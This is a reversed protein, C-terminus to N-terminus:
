AGGTASRPSCSLQPEASRDVLMTLLMSGLASDRHRDSVEDEEAKQGARARLDRAVRRTMMVGRGRDRAVTGAGPIVLIPDAVGSTNKVSGLLRLFYCFILTPVLRREVDVVALAAIQIVRPLPEADLLTVVESTSTSTFCLSM